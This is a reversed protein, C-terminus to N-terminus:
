PRDNIFDVSVGIKREIEIELCNPITAHYRHLALCDKCIGHWKCKTDPCNCILNEENALIEQPSL